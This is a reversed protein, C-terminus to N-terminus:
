SSQIDTDGIIEFAPHELVLSFNYVSKGLGVVDVTQHMALFCRVYDAGNFPFFLYLAPSPFLFYGQNLCM